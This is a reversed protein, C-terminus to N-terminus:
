RRSEGETRRRMGEIKWDEREPFSVDMLEAAAAVAQKVDDEDCWEKYLGDVAIQRLPEISEFAFQRTLGVALLTLVFPYKDTVPLLELREGRGPRQPRTGVRPLRCPM